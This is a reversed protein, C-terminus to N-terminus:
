KPPQLANVIHKKTTFVPMMERHDVKAQVWGDRRDEGYVSTTAKSVEQVARECSQTHTSYPDIGLPHDVLSEIESITMKCTFVPELVTASRWDILEIPKSAALNITPNRRIRVSMDGEEQGGRVELIKNVAFKRDEQDVSCLLSTLLNESHASYAGRVIVETVVAKVEDSQQALLESMHVLHFPADKISHKAKIDFYLKFYVNITFRVLVELIRLTEGTLGHDSMWLMLLAEGTTCWRATSLEGCIIKALQDDLKGQKM